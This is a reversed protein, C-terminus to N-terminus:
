ALTGLSGEGPRHGQALRVLQAHTRPPPPDLAILMGPMENLDNGLPAVRVVRGVLRLRESPGCRLLMAVRTGMALPRRTNVFLRGRGLMAACDAGLGAESRYVLTRTPARRARGMRRM